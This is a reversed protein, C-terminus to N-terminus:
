YDILMINEIDFGLQPCYKCAQQSAENSTTKVKNDDLLFTSCGDGFQGKLGLTLNKSVAERAECRCGELESCGFFQLLDAV